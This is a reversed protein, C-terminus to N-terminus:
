ILTITTEPLDRFISAGWGESSMSSFTGVRFFEDTDPGVPHVLLGYVWRCDDEKAPEVNASDADGADSHLSSSDSYRSEASDPVTGASGLLLMAVERRPEGEAGPQWDLYCRALPPMETDGVLVENWEEGSVRMDTPLPRVRTTIQLSAAKVQGFPDAGAPQISVEMSSYEGRYDDYETSSYVQYQRSGFEVPGDRSAWSWSPALYSSSDRLDGLLAEWTRHNNNKSIWFLGRYLEKRWLGAAYEDSLLKAFFQAAGSLAPFRDKQYTLARTSFSSVVDTHWIRYYDEEDTYGADHDLQAVQFAFEGDFSGQGQTGWQGPNIFHVNSGGFALVRNSMILEQFTWGRKEWNSGFFDTHLWNYDNYDSSRIGHFRLSYSGVVDPKIKSQFSIELQAPQKNLFGQTCSESSLPCITLYASAYVKGMLASERQWDMVDDQIICLADVWLFPISLARCTKIADQLVSTMEHEGIASLRAALSSRETKLQLAAQEPPGWCYSLAAYNNLAQTWDESHPTVVLRAPECDVRILRTPVFADDSSAEM